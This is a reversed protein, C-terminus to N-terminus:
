DNNPPGPNPTFIRPSAFHCPIPREEIHKMGM